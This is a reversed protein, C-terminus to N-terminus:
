FHLPVSVETAKAQLAFTLLLFSDTWSNGLLEHLYGFISFIWIANVINIIGPLTLHFFHNMLHEIM